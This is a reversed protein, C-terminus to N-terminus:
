RCWCEFEMCIGTAFGRIECPDFCQIDTFCYLHINVNETTGQAIVISLLFILFFTVYVCALNEVM